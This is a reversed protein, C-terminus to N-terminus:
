SRLIDIFDLESLYSSQSQWFSSPTWLCSPGGQDPGLAIFSKTGFDAM